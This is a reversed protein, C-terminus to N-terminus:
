FEEIKCVYLNIKDYKSPKKLLVDHTKLLIKSIKLLKCHFENIYKERIGCCVVKRTTRRFVAKKMCQWVPSKGASVPSNRNPIRIRKMPIRNSRGFHQSLFRVGSLPPNCTGFLGFNRPNRPLNLHKIKRYSGDIETRPAESSILYGERARPNSDWRKRWFLFM